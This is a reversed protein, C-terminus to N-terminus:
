ATVTAREPDDVWDLAWVLAAAVAEHGQASAAEGLGFRRARLSLVTAPPPAARHVQRYTWLLAAPSLAHTSFSPDRAPQVPRAACPADIRPDADVFLVRQRGVLDLCHEPQLQHDQLLECRLRQDANLRQALAAILLPGLGDDGRADNGWGFVLLPKTAPHAETNV